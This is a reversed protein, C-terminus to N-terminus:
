FAFMSKTIFFFIYIYICVFYEKKRSGCQFKVLLWYDFDFLKIFKAKLCFLVEEVSDLPALIPGANHCFTKTVIM